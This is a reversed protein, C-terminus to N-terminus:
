KAERLEKIAKVIQEETPTLYHCEITDEMFSVGKGKITHAIIVTPKHQQQTANLLATCIQEIDHGNTEQVNWGFTKWKESFPELDMVEKVRGFSQIKNYDVIAILNNLKFHSASLIAEWTSGEDCEGDSLLVFVNYEKENQKAALAMGVGISLGHGLSGTSVEVGPVEANGHATFFSGDKLYNKLEEEHFFGKLALTIYLCSCAHGKSLIFRDRDEKKPNAPDIKLVNFYLAVIIDTCSLASGIHASKAKSVMEITKIRIEKAKEQLFLIETKSTCTTM